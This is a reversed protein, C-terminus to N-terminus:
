VRAEPAVFPLGLQEFLLEESDAHTVCAIRERCRTWPMGLAAELYLRPGTFYLLDHPFRAPVPCKIDHLARGARAICRHPGLWLEVYDVVGACRAADMIAVFVGAPANPPLQVIVDGLPARAGGRRFVGCARVVAGAATTACIPQLAEAFKSNEGATVPVSNPVIAGAQVSLSQLGSPFKLDGLKDGAVAFRGDPQAQLAAWPVADAEFGPLQLVPVSALFAVDAEIDLRDMIGHACGLQTALARAADARDATPLAATGSHLRLGARCVLLALMHFSDARKWQLYLVARTIQTDHGPTDGPLEVDNLWDEISSSDSAQSAQSPKLPSPKYPSSLSSGLQSPLTPAAVPPSVLSSISIEDFTSM